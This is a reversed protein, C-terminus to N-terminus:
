PNRIDNNISNSIVRLALIPGLLVTSTICFHGRLAPNTGTPRNFYHLFPRRRKRREEAQEEEEGEVEEEQTAKETNAAKM